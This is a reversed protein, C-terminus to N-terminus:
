SISELFRATGHLTRTRYSQLPGGSLIGPDGVTTQETTEIALTEFEADGNPLNIIPIVLTLKVAELDPVAELEITVLAGISTEEHHIEDGSRSIERGGDRYTFSAEGIISTEEYTVEINDDGSLRFSNPRRPEAPTSGEKIPISLPEADQVRIVVRSAEYGIEAVYSVQTPTIVEEGVDPRREVLRLVVDEPHPVAGPNDAELKLSYGTTRCECAGDVHLTRRGERAIATAGFSSEACRCDAV